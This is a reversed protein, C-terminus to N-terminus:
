KTEGPAPSLLRVVQTKEWGQGCTYDHPFILWHVFIEPSGCDPARREKTVIGSLGPYNGQDRWAVLDGIKIM